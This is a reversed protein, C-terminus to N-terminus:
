FSLLFQANQMYCNFKFYPIAAFHLARAYHSKRNPSLEQLKWQAALFQEFLTNINPSM